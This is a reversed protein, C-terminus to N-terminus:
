EDLEHSGIFNAGLLHSLINMHMRTSKVSTFTSQTAEHGLVLPQPNESSGLSGWRVEVPCLPVSYTPEERLPSWFLQKSVKLKELMWCQLQISRSLVNVPPQVHGWPGCLEHTVSIEAKGPTVPEPSSCHHTDKLFGRCCHFASAWTEQEQVTCCEPYSINARSNVLICESSAWHHPSDRSGPVPFEACGHPTSLHWSTNKHPSRPQTFLKLWGTDGHCSARPPPLPNWHSAPAQNEMATPLDMVLPLGLGVRHNTPMGRVEPQFLALFSQSVMKKKEQLHKPDLEPLHSPRITAMLCCLNRPHHMTDEPKGGM